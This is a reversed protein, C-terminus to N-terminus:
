PHNLNIKVINATNFAQTQFMARESTMERFRRDYENETIVLPPNDPGMAEPEFKLPTDVELSEFLTKLEEEQEKTLTSEVELGKDILKDLSDADVRRFLVNENKEELKGIFYSDVPGDFVLVKYGKKEAQQIYAVQAKVDTTYLAITKKDKNQQNTEALKLYESITYFNAETDKLLCFEVARDYFKDD